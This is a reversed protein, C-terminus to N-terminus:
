QPPPAMTARVILHMRLRTHRAAADAATTESQSALLLDVALRGAPRIPM